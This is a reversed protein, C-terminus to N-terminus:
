IIVTLVDKARRGRWGRITLATQPAKSQQLLGHHKYSFAFGATFIM